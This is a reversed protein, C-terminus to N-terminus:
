ALRRLLEAVGAVDLGEIRLGGPGHVVIRGAPAEVVAVPVFRPREAIEEPASWGALTERRVGLERLVASLPAGAAQRAKLYAAGRRRLEAPYRKGPGRKGARRVAERFAAAEKVIDM